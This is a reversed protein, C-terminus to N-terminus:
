AQRKRGESVQSSTNLSWTQVKSFLTELTESSNHLQPSEHLIDTNLQVAHPKDVALYHRVPINVNTVMAFYLQHERLLM